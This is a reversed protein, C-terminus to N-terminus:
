NGAPAVKQLTKCLIVNVHGDPWGELEVMRQFGVKEYMGPAQFDHSQVWIRRVGRRTAEAVFAILLARGYGRGRYREDIWMQKLESTDSWTYGAAAGIMQGADDRLLFGIGRADRRGTAESNYDYLRDEVTNIENPSLDHRPEVRINM